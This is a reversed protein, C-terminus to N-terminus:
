RNMSARLDKLLSDASDMRILGLRPSELDVIVYIALTFTIVFLAVHIWRRQGASSLQYGALLSAVLSLSILLVFVIGPTHFQTAAFRALTLDFMQNLSPLLQMAAAPTGTKQAAAVATTWIAQQMTLSREFEQKAAQINPILAYTLIRSDLYKRFQTRLGERDSPQLLDLRLYATSIANTEEVILDRRGDFRDAASSFTFAVLLGLLALIPGDVVGVWERSAQPYARFHWRGLRYGIEMFLFLILGLGLCLPLSLLGFAPPAFLTVALM